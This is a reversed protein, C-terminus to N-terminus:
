LDVPKHLGLAYGLILAFLFGTGSSIFPNFHLLKTGLLGFIGTPVIFYLALITIIKIKESTKLNKEDNTETKNEIDM